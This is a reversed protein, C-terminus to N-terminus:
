IGTCSSVGLASIIATAVTIVLQLVQKWVSKKIIM